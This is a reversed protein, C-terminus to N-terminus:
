LRVYLNFRMEDGIKTEPGHGTIVRTDEDLTYLRDKISREIAHEDGGWLNTRGISGRVLTDGAISRGGKFRDLNWLIEM